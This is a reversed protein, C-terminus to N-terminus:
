KADTNSCVFYKIENAFAAGAKQSFYFGAIIGVAIGPIAGVVTIESTSVFIKLIGLLIACKIFAYRISKLVPAVLKGLNKM